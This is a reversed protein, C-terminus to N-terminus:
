SCKGSQGNCFLCNRLGCAVRIKPGPVTQCNWNSRLYNITEIRPPCLICNPYLCAPTNAKLAMDLLICRLDNHDEFCVRCLHKTTVNKPPNCFRCKTQECAPRPRGSQCDVIYKGAPLPISHAPCNFLRMFYYGVWGFPVRNLRHMAKAHAADAEAHSSFGPPPPPPPPCKSPAHGHCRCPLPKGPYWGDIRQTTTIYGTFEPSKAPRKKDLWFAFLLDAIAHAFHHRGSKKDHKEGRLWASIHRLAPSVYDEPTGNKWNDRGYELAGDDQVRAVEEIEAWQLFHLM